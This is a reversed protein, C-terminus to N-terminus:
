FHIEWIIPVFKSLIEKGIFFSAVQSSKSINDMLMMSFFAYTFYFCKYSKFQSLIRM